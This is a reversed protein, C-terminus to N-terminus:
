HFLFKCLTERINEECRNLKQQLIDIHAEKRHIELKLGDTQNKM